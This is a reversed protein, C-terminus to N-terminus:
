SKQQLYIISSLRMINWHESMTKQNLCHICKLEPFSHWFSDNPWKILWREQWCQLGHQLNARNTTVFFSIKTEWSNIQFTMGEAFQQFCEELEWVSTIWPWNIKRLGAHAMLNSIEDMSFQAAWIVQFKTHHLFSARLCNALNESEQYSTVWM